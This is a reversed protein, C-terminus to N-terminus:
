AKAQQQIRVPSGLASLLSSIGTPVTPCPTLPCGGGTAPAGTDGDTRSCIDGWVTRAGCLEKGRVPLIFLSTKCLGVHDAYHVAGFGAARVRWPALLWQTSRERRLRIGRGQCHIVALLSIRLQAARGPGWTHTGVAWCTQSAALPVWMGVPLKQELQSCWM